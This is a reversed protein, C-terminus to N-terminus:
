KQIYEIKGTIVKSKTSPVETVNSNYVVAVMITTEEGSLLIEDPEDTIYRIPSTPSEDDSTFEVKNLIADITGMNEITIEYVVLDGPKNLKPMITATTDTFEPKGPDCGLTREQMEVSTIKINWSGTIEATENLELKTVFTSYGITMTLIIIFLSLIIISKKNKM